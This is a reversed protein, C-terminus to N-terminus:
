LERVAQEHLAQFTAGPRTLTRAISAFRSIYAAEDVPAEQASRWARLANSFDARVPHSVGPLYEDEILQCIRDLLEYQQPTPSRTFPVGQRIARDRRLRDVLDLGAPRTAEIREVKARLDAVERLLLSAPSAAAVHVPLSVRRVSSIIQPRVALSISGPSERVNLYRIVDAEGLDSQTIQSAEESNEDRCGPEIVLQQRRLAVRYLYFQAAGEGEDRMHRLMSEIASEYTGLHLARNEDADRIRRVDGPRMTRALFEAASPPMPRARSPWGPDTSAHYWAVQAAVQDNLVPDSPDRLAMVAPGFHIESGCRACPVRAEDHENYYEAPTLTTIGPCVPCRMNYPYDFTVWREELDHVTGDQVGGSQAVFPAERAQAFV